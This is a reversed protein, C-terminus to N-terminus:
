GNGTEDKNASKRWLESMEMTMKTKEGKERKERWHNDVAPHLGRDAEVTGVEELGVDCVKDFVDGCSPPSWRRRSGPYFVDECTPPSWWQRSGPCGGGLRRRSRMFSTERLSRSSLITPSTPALIRTKSKM